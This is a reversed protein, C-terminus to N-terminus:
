CQSCAITDPGLTRSKADKVKRFALITREVQQWSDGTATASRDHREIKQLNPFLLHLYVAVDLPNYIMTDAFGVESILTNCDNPMDDLATPPEQADVAISFTKLHRCHNVLHELGKLTVRSLGRWGSSGLCLCRLLPWARALELIASNDLGFDVGHGDIVISTMSRFAHLPRLAAADIVPCQADNRVHTSVHITHLVTRACNNHITLFIDNPSHFASISLLLTELRPLKCMGLTTHYSSSSHAYFTATRLFPLAWWIDEQKPSSRRCIGTTWWNCDDLRANLSELRRLSCLPSLLESSLVFDCCFERIHSLDKFLIPLHPMVISTREMDYLGLVKLRPAASPILVLAQVLREEQGHYGKIHLVELTPAFFMQMFHCIEVPATSSIWHLRRLNPLLPGPPKCLNLSMYTALPLAFQIPDINRPHRDSKTFLCM